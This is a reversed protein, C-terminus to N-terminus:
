RIVCQLSITGAEILGHTQNNKTKNEEKNILMLALLHLKRIHSLTM